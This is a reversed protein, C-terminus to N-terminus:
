DGSIFSIVLKLIASITDQWWGRGILLYGGLGLLLLGTVREWWQRDGFLLRFGFAMIAILAGARLFIGIDRNADIREQESETREDRLGELLGDGARARSLIKITTNTAQDLSSVLVKVADRASISVGRAKDTGADTWIVQLILRGDRGFVWLKSRVEGSWETENDGLVSATSRIRYERQIFLLGDVKARSSVEALTQTIPHSPDALAASYRAEAFYTSDLDDFSDFTSRAVLGAYVLTADQQKIPGVWDSGYKSDSGESKAGILVVHDTVSFGALALRRIKAMEPAEIKNSSPSGGCSTLLSAICAWAILLMPGARFRGRSLEGNQLVRM